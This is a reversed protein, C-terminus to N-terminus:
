PDDDRVDTDLTSAESVGAHKQILFANMLQIKEFGVHERFSVMTSADFRPKTLYSTYGLFYHVYPNERVPEVTERDTLQLREKIILAGLAVYVVRASM